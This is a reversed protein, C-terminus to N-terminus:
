PPPSTPSSLVDRSSEDGTGGRTEMRLLEASTQVRTQRGKAVVDTM